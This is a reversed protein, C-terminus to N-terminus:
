KMCISEQIATKKIENCFQINEEEEEEKKKKKGIIGPLYGKFIIYVVSIM